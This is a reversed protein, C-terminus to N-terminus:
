TTTYFRAIQDVVYEQQVESLLPFVPLALTEQAALESVPFMGRSWGFREFCPQLHLPVPYYVECGVGQQRLFSALEDRRKARVIYHHYVM